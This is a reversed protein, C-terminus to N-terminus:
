KYMEGQIVYKGGMKRIYELTTINIPSKPFKYGSTQFYHDLNNSSKYSKYSEISKSHIKHNSYIRNYNDIAKLQAEKGSIEIEKQTFPALATSEVIGTGAVEYFVLKGERYKMAHDLEEALSCLPCEAVPDIIIEVRSNNFDYTILGNAGGADGFRIHYKNESDNILLDLNKKTEKDSTDYYKQFLEYSSKSDFTISGISYEGNNGSGSGGTRGDLRVM